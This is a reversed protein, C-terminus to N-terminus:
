GSRSKYKSINLLIGAAFLSILMASGGQSIFTLPVGTLPALGLMGAINIFAEITLYTVIGVALLGGFLDSARSAVAIGRLAFGLFLGIISVAGVFGFEEGAIAFISDGMPEPLYTFKQVSQGFGRGAFGGSGIAILSQRIQYGEAQPNQSPDLFTTVRDLVYPRLMALVAIALLGICITIAIDRFRAGAVIFIALTSFAIIGLTGLDPQLILLVTPAALIAFLGGLSYRIDGMRARVASFYAAAIFITGMKLAESPQFSMNAIVLWRRGGGHEFGLSPVFVLATVALAAIFLHPAFRRWTRYNITTAILLVVLGVGVGLALHNFAISSVNTAGRALPGFIASAFIILGGGVLLAILIALPKDIRAKGGAM